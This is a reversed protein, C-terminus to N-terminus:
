FTYPIIPQGLFQTLQDKFSLLIWFVALHDRRTLNYWNSYVSYKLTTLILRPQLQVLVQQVAIRVMNAKIKEKAEIVKWM